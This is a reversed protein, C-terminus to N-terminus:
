ILENSKEMAENYEHSTKECQLASCAEAYETLDLHQDGYCEDWFITGDKFWVMPINFDAGSFFGFFYGLGEDTYYHVKVSYNSTTKTIRNLPSKSNGTLSKGERLELPYKM